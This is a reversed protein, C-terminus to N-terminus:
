EASLSSLLVPKHRVCLSTCIGGFSLGISTAPIECQIVLKELLRKSVGYFPPSSVHNGTGTSPSLPKQKSFLRDTSPSLPIQKSFSSPHLKFFFFCLVRRWLTLLYLLKDRSPLYPRSAPKWCSIPWLLRFLSQSVLVSLLAAGPRLIIGHQTTSIATTTSSSTTRM